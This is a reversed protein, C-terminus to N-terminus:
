PLLQAPVLVVERLRLAAPTPLLALFEALEAATRVVERFLLTRIQAPREAATRVVFEDFLAAECGCLRAFLAALAAPREGTRMKPRHIPTMACVLFPADLALLAARLRWLFPETTIHCPVLLIGTLCSCSRDSALSALPSQWSRLETRVSCSTSEIQPLWQSTLLAARLALVGLTARFSLADLSRCQMRNRNQILADKWLEGLFLSARM